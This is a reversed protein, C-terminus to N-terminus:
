GGGGSPNGGTVAESNAFGRADPVFRERPATATYSARFAAGPLPILRLPTASVTASVQVPGGAVTVTPTSAATGTRGLVDWAAAQADGPTGTTTRVTQVAQIAAYRCITHAHWWLGAQVIALLMVLAVPFLVALEVTEEGDDGGVPRRRRSTWGSVLRCM